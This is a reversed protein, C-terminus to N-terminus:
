ARLAISYAPLSVPRQAIARQVEPLMASLRNIPTLARELGLLAGLDGPRTSLISRYVRAAEEYSGRRELDFARAMLDQAVVRGALGMLAVTLLVGRRMRQRARMM